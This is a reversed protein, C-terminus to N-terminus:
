KFLPNITQIGYSFKTALEKIYKSTHANDIQDTTIEITKECKSLHINVGLDKVKKHLYYKEVYTNAMHIRQGEFPFGHAKRFWEIMKSTSAFGDKVAIAYEQDGTLAIGGIAIVIEVSITYGDFVRDVREPSIDIITVDEVKKCTATGLKQCYKTRIGSFLYLTDGKRFPRKRAARITTTKPKIKLRQAYDKDLMARVAPVFQKQFSLSPM